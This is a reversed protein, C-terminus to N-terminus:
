NKEAEDPDWAPLDTQPSQGMNAMGRLISRSSQRGRSKPPSVESTAAQSVVERATQDGNTEEM